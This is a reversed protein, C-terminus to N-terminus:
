GVRCIAGAPDPKWCPVKLEDLITNLLKAQSDLVQQVPKGDICIEKFTNKFIQSVEQDKAGLGVPPLSV